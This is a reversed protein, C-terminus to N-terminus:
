ESEREDPLAPFPALPKTATMPTHRRNSLAKAAPTDFRKVEDSAARFPVREKEQKAGPALLLVILWLGLAAAIALWLWRMPGAPLLAFHKPSSMPEPYCQGLRLLSTGECGRPLGM